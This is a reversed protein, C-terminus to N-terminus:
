FFAAVFNDWDKDKIVKDFGLAKLIKEIEDPEHRHGTLAETILKKFSANLGPYTLEFYEIIGKQAKLSLTFNIDGAQFSNEYNYPPSWGFIWDNTIFKEVALKEIIESVDDSFNYEIGKYLEILFYFLGHRFGEISIKEKLCDTINVVRSRNSQVAKDNYVGQKRTICSNLVGLDADFLLTGHHLIRNKFIHEANGSIKRGDVLIENKLGQVANIKLSRLYLLVPSIFRKFDILKGPEGKTVFTFNINGLDHYVTGGGSIRRAIKIDSKLVEATNIEAYANQHKGVIISPLSSWLMVYDDDSYKLLYEEAALNYYPDNIRSLICKM